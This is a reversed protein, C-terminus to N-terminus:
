LFHSSLGGPHIKNPNRGCYFHLNEAAIKTLIGSCGSFDLRGRRGGLPPFDKRLDFIEQARRCFEQASRFNGARGAFNQASRFNGARPPLIGTRISFKGRAGPLMGARTAIKRAESCFIKERRKDGSASDKGKKQGRFRFRKKCIGALGQIKTKRAQSFERAQSFNLARLGPLGFDHHAM